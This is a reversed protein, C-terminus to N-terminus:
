ERRHCVHDRPMPRLVQGMDLAAVASWRPGVVHDKGEPSRSQWSCWSTCLDSLALPAVNWVLVCSPACQEARRDVIHARPAIEKGGHLQPHCRLIVVSSRLGRKTFHPRLHLSTLMRPRSVRSCIPKGAATLGWFCCRSADSKTRPLRTTALVTLVSWARVQFEAKRFVYEYFGALLSFM